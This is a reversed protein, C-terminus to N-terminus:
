GPDEVIYIDGRGGHRFSEDRWDHVIVEHEDAVCFGDPRVAVSCEFLDEWRFILRGCTPRADQGVSISKSPLLLGPKIEVCLRPAAVFACLSWTGNLVRDAGNCHVASAM